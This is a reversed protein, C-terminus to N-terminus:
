GVAPDRAVAFQEDADLPIGAPPAAINTGTFGFREPRRQGPKNGAADTRTQRVIKLIDGIGHRRAALHRDIMMVAEPIVATAVVVFADPAAASVDPRRKKLLRERPAAAARRPVPEATVVERFEIRPIPAPQFLEGIEAVLASQHQEVFIIK